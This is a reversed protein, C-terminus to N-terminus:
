GGFAETPHHQREIVPDRGARVYNGLPPSSAHILGGSFLDLIVRPRNM